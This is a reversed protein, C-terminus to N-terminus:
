IKVESGNIFNVINNGRKEKAYFIVPSNPLKEDFDGEPKVLTLNIDISELTQGTEKLYDQALKIIRETLIKHRKDM